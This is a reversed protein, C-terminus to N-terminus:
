PHHHGAPQGVGRLGDVLGGGDLEEGEPEVEGASPGAMFGLGWSWHMTPFVAVLRATVGPDGGGAVASAAVVAAGYGAPLVLARRRGVAAALLGGVVALVTAPAVLQRWRLSRPHRRLVERKWAGYQRYQRALAGLSGRPRYRVRLAPDFWVTRGTERLRWNLEYDQNRELDEAFGGVADLDHRRFVGLYVTDVPGERGGLRYRADGVGFRSATAAAVAREFATVGVSEQVGGVNAAGTRGLTEVARRLYGPPLVAHADLRAVVPATTAAIARNLGAPTSGSPNPVVRVAPHSAALREAVAATGDSSPGVAVVVELGGGVDQALASEVAARLTAAGDRVPIVVATSVPESTGGGATVDPGVDSATSVPESTGGGATVDPGVDSAAGVPESTGGGATVDPGVDSATSVPESTGGGATVDPGVDSAAGVPESTGGGATVDPGVGSAAGVPEVPESTEDGAGGGPGVDSATSVPESTGGGATVDPGVGSATGM